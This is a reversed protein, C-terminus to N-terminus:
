KHLFEPASDSGFPEYLHFLQPVTGAAYDHWYATPYAAPADMQGPAILQLQQQSLGLYARLGFSSDQLGVQQAFADYTSWWALLHAHRSGASALIRDLAQQPSDPDFSSGLSGPSSALNRIRDFGFVVIARPADEEALVWAELRPLLAAADRERLVETVAGASTTAAATAEVLGAPLGDDERLLDVLLISPSDEACRRAFGIAGWQLVSAASRAGAGIVALHRNPDPPLSVRMGSQLRPDDDSLELAAGIWTAASGGGRRLDLNRSADAGHEGDFV